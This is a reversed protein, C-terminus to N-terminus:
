DRDSQERLEDRAPREIVRRRGRSGEALERIGEPDFADVRIVDYLATLAELLLEREDKTVIGSSVAWDVLGARQDPAVSDDNPKV